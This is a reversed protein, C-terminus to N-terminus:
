KMRSEGEPTVPANMHSGPLPHVEDPSIVERYLRKAPIGTLEELEILVRLTPENEGLEWKSVATNTVEFRDGFNKQSDKWKRRITKLNESISM